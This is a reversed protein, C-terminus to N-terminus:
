QNIEDGLLELEIDNTGPILRLDAALQEREVRTLPRRADQRFRNTAPKRHSNASLSADSQPKAQDPAVQRQTNLRDLEEKVRREVLANIEETSPQNEDARAVIPSPTKRLSSVALVAFICFLVSAFAVTAKMWVPSLSFFERIAAAASRSQAPHGMYEIASLSQASLSENRWAIVSQRINGFADVEAACSACEQMHGRFAQTETEELEGYLFGVLDEERGCVLRDIGSDM